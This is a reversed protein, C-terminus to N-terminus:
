FQELGKDLYKEDGFRKGWREYEPNLERKKVYTFEKKTHWETLNQKIWAGTSAPSKKIVKNWFKRDILFEM